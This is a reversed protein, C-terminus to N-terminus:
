LQFKNLQRFPIVDIVFMCYGAGLQKGYYMSLNIDCFDHLLIFTNGCSIAGRAPSSGAVWHNVAVQEALQAVPSRVIHWKYWFFDKSAIGKCLSLGSNFRCVLIQLGRCLWEAM